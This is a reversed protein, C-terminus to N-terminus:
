NVIVYKKLILQVHMTSKAMKMVYFAEPQDTSHKVVFVISIMFSYKDITSEPARGYNLFSSTVKYRMQKWPRGRSVQLRDDVELLMHRRMRAGHQGPEEHRLKQHLARQM